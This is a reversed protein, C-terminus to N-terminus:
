QNVGTTIKAPSSSCAMAPVGAPPKQKECKAATGNSGGLVGRVGDNDMENHQPQRARTAKKTKM